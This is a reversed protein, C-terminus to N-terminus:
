LEMIFSTNTFTPYNINSLFTCVHFNMWYKIWCRISCSKFINSSINSQNAKLLCLLGRVPKHLLSYFRKRIFFLMKCLFCPSIALGKWKVTTSHKYIFCYGNWFLCSFRYVNWRDRKNMIKKLLSRESADTISEM